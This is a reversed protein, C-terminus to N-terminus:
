TACPVACSCSACIRLENLPTGRSKPDECSHDMAAFDVQNVRRALVIACAVPWGRCEPEGREDHDGPGILPGSNSQLSVHCSTILVPVVMTVNRITNRIWLVCFRSVSATCILSSSSSRTEGPACLTSM